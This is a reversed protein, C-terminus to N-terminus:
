GATDIFNTFDAGNAIQSRVNNWRDAQYATWTTGSLYRFASLVNAVSDYIGM